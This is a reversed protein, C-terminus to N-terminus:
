KPSSAYDMFSVKAFKNVREESGNTTLSSKHTNSVISKMIRIQQELGRRRKISTGCGFQKM